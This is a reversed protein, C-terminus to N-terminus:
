RYLNEQNKYVLSSIGAIVNELDPISRGKTMVCLLYPHQPYFVFGCNHLENGIQVGTDASLLNSDGYKEALPVDNPIGAQIGESFDTQTLLQMAKESYQPDLYTANYLVRFFLAYVQISLFDGNTGYSTGLYTLLSTLADEKGIDQLHDHLLILANNDSYKIMHEVLEGATYSQGPMLQVPSRVNENADMDNQGTYLIRQSLISGDNEALKYYAMMLPVKYLSAPNYKESPNILFGSAKKIDGFKVSATFLAGSKTQADIFDQVKKKLANYQPSDSESSVAILPDIYEYPSENVITSERIGKSQPASTGTYAYIGATGAAGTVFCVVGTIIFKQELSFRTM